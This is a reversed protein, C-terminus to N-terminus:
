KTNLPISHKSIKKCRRRRSRSQRRAMRRRRRSPSRRQRRAMRRIANKSESENGLRLGADKLSCLILLTGCYYPYPTGPAVNRSRCTGMGCKRFLRREKPLSIHRQHLAKEMEDCNLENVGEYAVKLRVQGPIRKELEKVSKVFDGNEWLFSPTGNGRCSSGCVAESNMAAEVTNSNAHSGVFHHVVNFDTSNIWKVHAAVNADLTERSWTEEKNNKNAAIAAARALRTKEATKANNKANNKANDQTNKANNKAYNKANTKHKANTKANSKATKAKMGKPDIFDKIKRTIFGRVARDKGSKWAAPCDLRQRVFKLVRDLEWRTLARIKRGGCLWCEGRLAEIFSPAFVMGEPPLYLFSVNTKNYDNENNDKNNKHTTAKNNHEQPLSSSLPPPPPPPPPPYNSVHSRTSPNFVDLPFLLAAVKPPKSLLVEKAAVDSAIGSAGHSSRTSRGRAPAACVVCARRARTAAPVDLGGPCPRASRPLTSRSVTSTTTKIGPVPVLVKYLYKWKQNGYVGRSILSPKRVM